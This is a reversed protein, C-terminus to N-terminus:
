RRHELSSTPAQPEMQRVTFDQGECGLGGPFVSLSLARAEPIPIISEIIVSTNTPLPGPTTRPRM